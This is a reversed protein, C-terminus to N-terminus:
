RGDPAEFCYSSRQGDIVRGIRGRATLASGEVDFTFDDFHIREIGFRRIGADAAVRCAADTATFPGADSGQVDLECGMGEWTLVTAGSEENRTVGFFGSTQGYYFATGCDPAGDPQEVFYRFTGEYRFWSGQTSTPKRGASSTDCAGLALALLVIAITRGSM